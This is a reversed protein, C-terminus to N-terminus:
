RIIKAAKEEALRATLRREVFGPVLGHIDGELRAVEKVLRSSLFSYAEAALLFVTEVESHLRRNMLAMQLEYEYDSVARIGRIILRANRAKAYGVLLGDFSDITVNPHSTTAERLMEMREAPSFLPQKEENRLVAVILHDALRAGREIIDLHGNTLPDFTGPYIAILSM